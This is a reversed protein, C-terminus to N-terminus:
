DALAELCAQCRRQKALDAPTVGGLDKSSKAGKARLLRILEPQVAQAAAHLPSRGFEDPADLKAGLAILESAIEALGQASALHLPSRGQDDRAYTAPPDEALIERARELNADAIALHLPPNLRKPFLAGRRAGLAALADVVGNHDGSRRLRSEILDLPTRGHIDRPNPPAGKGILLKLAAVMRADPRHVNAAIHLPTQENRDRAELNAGAEILVAIPPTRQRGAAAHLPTQGTKDTANLDAGQELLFRLVRPSIEFFAGSAQHLATRGAQNSANIRAGRALLDTMAPIDGQEAAKLLSETAQEDAFEAGADILAQVVATRNHRMAEAIPTRKFPGAPSELDAGKAALAAVIAASKAFHIARLESKDGADPDAKAELLITVIESQDQRVANHLAGDLAAGQEILWRAMAPSKAAILPTRGDGAPADRLAFNAALAAKAAELDDAAVADHLAMFRPVDRLVELMVPSLRPLDRASRGQHDRADTKAGAKLLRKAIPLLGAEAAAHLPTRGFSAAANVDAGLAIFRAAVDSRRRSIAHILLPQGRHQAKAWDPHEQLLSLARADDARDIAHGLMAPHPTAPQAGHRVLLTAGEEHGNQVAWDVLSLGDPTKADLKAGAAILAEAVEPQRHRLAEFLLPRDRSDTANPDAGKALLLKILELNRHRIAHPLFEPEIKAGAAILEQAELTRNHVIAQHLPSRTQKPRPQPTQVPEPEAPALLKASSDTAFDAATRGGRDTISMDAGMTLLARVLDAHGERAAYHLATRGFWDRDNLVEPKAAVLKRVEDVQGKKAVNHIDGAFLSPALLCTILIAIKM